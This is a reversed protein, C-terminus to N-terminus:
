SHFEEKLFWITEIGVSAPDPNMCTCCGPVVPVTSPEKILSVQGNSKMCVTTNGGKSYFDSLVPAHSLVLINLLGSTEIRILNLICGKVLDLLLPVDSNPYHHCVYSTVIVSIILAEIAPQRTNKVGSTNSFLQRSPKIM